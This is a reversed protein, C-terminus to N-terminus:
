PGRLADVIGAWAPKKAYADDWPLGWPNGTQDPNTCPAFKNLWSYKDTVGWLTVAHCKSAALCTAVVERYRQRQVEFKTAQDGSVSCLSVDLESINVLLGLESLRQINAALEAVPPYGSGSIHMQLGVGDIPVGTNVLRKVLAYAADSKGGLGETSYDNYFLLADPDASRAVRFAEDIYTEGLQQYFVSDRLANDNGDDIAENVVDWAAVKGKFHGAVQRIHNTMAQRVEDATALNKVWEPLQSHWVLCHGKVRMQHEEAFAVLADGGAFSFANPTAETFSWKMENEPTLYNFESAAVAAYAADDLHYSGLAAGVWREAGDAAERLTINAYDPGGEGANGAVGPPSEGGRGPTVGPSAPRRDASIPEDFDSGCGSLAAITPLARLAFWHLRGAAM